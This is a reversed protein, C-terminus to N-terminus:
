KENKTAQRDLVFNHDKSFNDNYFEDRILDNGLKSTVYKIESIFRQKKDESLDYGRSISEYHFLVVQPLVMNYYGTNKIRVNLDVDNYAVKLNEDFGSVSEFKSKKIMLCAATAMSWNYPVLLRGFYGFDTAGTGLFAHVAVGGVGTVVGCHQITNDSYFLKVGVCGVHEQMSYGVMDKLWNGTIVETDNNLFLVYEGDVKKVAENNLYSYNFECEYRYYRFNNHNIAYNELLKQTEDEVSNNDIVIIEFNKYNTKLYISDVCKKLLYAKDRIPIIISVKPEKEIQYELIFMQPDGIQVVNAKINRRRMADELAKKGAEYAYNKNNGSKATSGEIERWHYLIKSIHKINKTKETFRLFLDYDQAGNYESRFGGIKDVINKRLVTFHCIYNYSLLTDPSFDPKFHPYYRKGNVNIKDEDSYIMDAKEDNNLLKVVEYLADIDLLDDNDLLGVFEGKAMKLASNTAESIHGNKKRYTIKIRQDHNEYEKLVQITDLNTSCDDVLCLEWNEYSQNIVSNICESLYQRNVNYVPVLISILPNYEFNKHNIEKQNEEIWNLYDSQKLPLYFREEITQNSMNNGISKLYQKILKPPIIFHHRTWAIKIIKFLVRPIRIFLKLTKKTIYDVKNILRWFLSVNKTYIIKRGKKTEIGLEIKKAAFPLDSTYNFNLNAIQEKFVFNRDILTDRNDKFDGKKSDVLIFIEDSSKKIGSVHIQPNKIGGLVVKGIKTYVKKM